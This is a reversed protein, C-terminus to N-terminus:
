LSSAPISQEFVPFGGGLLENKPSDASEFEDIKDFIVILTIFILLAFHM